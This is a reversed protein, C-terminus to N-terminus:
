VGSGVAHSRSNDRGGTRAALSQLTISANQSNQVSDANIWVTQRGNGQMDGDLYQTTSTQITFMTAAQGVGQVEPGPDVLRNVVMVLAKAEAFQVVIFQNVDSELRVDYWHSQPVCYYRTFQNFNQPQGNAPLERNDMGGGNVPMKVSGIFAQVQAGPNGQKVAASVTTTDGGYVFLVSALGQKQTTGPVTVTKPRQSNSWTVDVETDADNLAANYFFLGYLQSDNLQQARATDGEGLTIIQGNDWNINTM